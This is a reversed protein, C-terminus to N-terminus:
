ARDQGIQEYLLMEWFNGHHAPVKAIQESQGAFGGFGEVTKTVAGLGGSQM